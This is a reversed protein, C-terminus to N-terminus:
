TVRGWSQLILNAQLFIFGGHPFFNALGYSTSFGRHPFFDQCAGALMCFGPQAPLSDLQNTVHEVYM